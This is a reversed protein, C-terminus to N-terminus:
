DLILNATFMIQWCSKELNLDLLLFFSLWLHVLFVLGFWVCYAIIKAVTKM